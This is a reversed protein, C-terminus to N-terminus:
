GRRWRRGPRVRPRPSKLEGITWALGERGYALREVQTDTRQREFVKESVQKWGEAKLRAKTQKWTEKEPAAESLQQVGLISILCLIPAWFKKM